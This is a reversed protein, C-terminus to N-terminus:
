LMFCAFFVAMAFIVFQMDCRHAANDDGSESHSDGENGEEVETTCLTAAEGTPMTNCMNTSCLCVISDCVGTLGAVVPACGDGTLGIKTAIAAILNDSPCDLSWDLNQTYIALLLLTNYTIHIGLVFTM